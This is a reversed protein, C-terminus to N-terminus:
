KVRISGGNLSIPDTEGTLAVGDVTIGFFDPREYSRCKRRECSSLVGGDYITVVFPVSTSKQWYGTDGNPVWSYLDGTGTIVGCNVFNVSDPCAVYGVGTITRSKLRNVKHHTWDLEGRFSVSGSKRDIVQRAVLGFSARTVPNSTPKYWGGGVMADALAAVTYTAADAISPLCSASGTFAATVEYVHGTPLSVRTSAVQDVVLANFSGVGVVNFTVTQGNVDCVAANAAVLSASLSVWANGDADVYPPRLTLATSSVPAPWFGPARTLGLTSLPWDLEAPPVAKAPDQADSTLWGGSSIPAFGFLRSADPGSAAGWWNGTADLTGVGNNILVYGTWPPPTTTVPNVGNYRFANNHVPITTSDITPPGYFNINDIVPGAYSDVLLGRGNVADDFDNNAITLYGSPQVISWMTGWLNLASGNRFTNGVISGGASASGAIGITGRAGEVLNDAFTASFPGSATENPSINGINLFAGFPQSRFYNARVVLGRVRYYSAGAFFGYSARPGNEIYNSSIEINEYIAPNEASSGGGNSFGIVNLATQGTPASVFMTNHTIKLGRLLGPEAYFASGGSGAVDSHIWNYSIEINSLTGGNAVFGSSPVSIAHRFGTIEFGKLVVNSATISVPYSSSIVSEGGPRAAPVSPASFAPNMTWQAGLLSVSKNVTIPGAYTGPAVCITQGASATDIAAQISGGSSVNIDCAAMASACLAAGGLSIVASLLAARCRGNKLLKSRPGQRINRTSVTIM